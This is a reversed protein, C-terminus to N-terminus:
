CGQRAGITGNTVRSMADFKGVFVGDTVANARVRAFASM